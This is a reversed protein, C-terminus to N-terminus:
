PDAMGKLEKLGEGLDEMSTGPRLGISPELYRCRDTAPLPEAISLRALSRDGLM